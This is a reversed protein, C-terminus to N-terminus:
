LKFNESFKLDDLIMEVTFFEEPQGTFQLQTYNDRSRAQAEMFIEGSAEIVKLKLGEPLYLDNPSPHVQLTVAINGNEEANIKVLLVLNRKNFYLGLNILKAKSVWNKVLESESLNSQLLETSRLGIAPTIQQPNLLKEVAEWGTEIINSFWQGLNILSSSEQLEHLHDILAEPPRLNDLVLDETTVQPTYGLIAAKKGSNDLQVVVYGIRLERVDPPIPCIDAANIIPRCELKGVGSIELDAVNSCIQLVPNWSDSNALNTAIGLMSLYNNVVSVALTNLMVQQAKEKTPQQAAFNSAIQRMEGTIPLTIALNDREPSKSIM